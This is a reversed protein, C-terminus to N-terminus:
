IMKWIRVTGDSGGSAVIGQSSTIHTVAGEHASVKYRYSNFHSISYQTSQHNISLHSIITLSM